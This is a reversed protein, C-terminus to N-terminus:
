SSARLALEDLAPLLDSRDLAAELLGLMSEVRPRDLGDGAIVLLALVDDLDKPRSALIKMAIIDEVCAVPVELGGGVPMRVAREFFREELGPGALVVDVPIRAAIHAMPLVRTRAAFEDIDAVRIEFGEQVLADVLERTELGSADVTVDVDETLRAVGHVIAAQAGFVYWRTGATTFARDLAALADLDPSSM